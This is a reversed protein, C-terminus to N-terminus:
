GARGCVSYFALVGMWGSGRAMNAPVFSSRARAASAGKLKVNVARPSWVDNWLGSLQTSSQSARFHSASPLEAVGVITSPVVIM